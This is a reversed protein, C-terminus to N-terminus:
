VDLVGTEVYRAIAVNTVLLLLCYVFAVNLSVIAQRSHAFLVMLILAKTSVTNVAIIRDPLYPGRIARYLVVFCNLLIIIEIVEFFKDM